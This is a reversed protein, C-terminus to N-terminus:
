NPPMPAAIISNQFAKRKSLRAGWASIGKFSSLDFDLKLCRNYWCGAPIDALSFEQGLLYQNDGLQNNLIKLLSLVQEKAKSVKSADRKEPPLLILNLTIIACPAALTFGAWDMWQDRKAIMKHDELKLYNYKNSLYKIIANSEYLFFGEDEILPVTSNPNLAKYAEEKTRGYKGGYDKTEFDIKLESCLWIVKQVNCSSKRGFIKITM